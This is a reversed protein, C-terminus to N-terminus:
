FREVAGWWREAAHSTPPRWTAGVAPLLQPRQALLRTVVAPAPSDQAEAQLTHM